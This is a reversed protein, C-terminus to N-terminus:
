RKNRTGRIDVLGSILNALVNRGFDDENEQNHHSLWTNVVSCLQSLMVNNEHTEAKIQGINDLIYTEEDYTM